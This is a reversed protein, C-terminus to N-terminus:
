FRCIFMKKTKLLIIARVKRKSLYAKLIKAGIFPSYLDIFNNIGSVHKQTERLLEKLLSKDKNLIKEISSTIKLIAM